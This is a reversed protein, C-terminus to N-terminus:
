TSANFTATFPGVDPAWLSFTFTQARRIATALPPNAQFASPDAWTFQYQTAMSPDSPIAPPKSNAGVNFLASTATATTIPDPPVIPPSGVIM